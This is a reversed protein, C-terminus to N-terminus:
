DDRTEDGGPLYRLQTLALGVVAGSVVCATIVVSDQWSRTPPAGGLGRPFLATYWAWTLIWAVGAGASAGLTGFLPRFFRERLM